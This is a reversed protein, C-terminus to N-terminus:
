RISTHTPNTVTHPKPYGHCRGSLITENQVQRFPYFCDVRRVRGSNEVIRFGIHHVTKVVMGRCVTGRVQGFCVIRVVIVDRLHTEVHSGHHVGRSRVGFLVRLVHSDVFVCSLLVRLGVLRTDGDLVM